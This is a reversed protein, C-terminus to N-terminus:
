RGPASPRPGTWRSPRYSSWRSTARLQARMADWVGVMRSQLQDFYHYREDETMASLRRAAEGPATWLDGTM